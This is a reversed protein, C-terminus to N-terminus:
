APDILALGEGYEAVVKCRLAERGEDSLFATSAAYGWDRQRILDRELITACVPCLGMGDLPWFM